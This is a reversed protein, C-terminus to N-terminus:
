QGLLKKELEGYDYERQSFNNFRNPATKQRSQEKKRASKDQQRKQDIAEIDELSRVKQRYWESLIKDAYQFNPQHTQCITRRCAELVIDITFGYDSLWRDMMEQEPPAPSRGKIGFSKLIDYYNKNYLTTERKAERVSSIGKEAWSLAVRRMYHRSTTGKSICYELLYEILDFSLHLSSYYYVYDNQEQSTLPRQLYQEAVFFLQKMEKQEEESLEAPGPDEEPAFVEQRVPEEEPEEKQAPNRWPETFTVSLLDGLKGLEVKLLGQNEWYSLARRVDNETHEFVDAISSLSLERGTNACRLLYLYVKVFEGNARPMYQDIFYNQIVTAGEPTDTYIKM